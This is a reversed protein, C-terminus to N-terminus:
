RPELFAYFVRVGLNRDDGPTAGPVASPVFTRDVELSLTVSEDEGMQDAGLLLEHFQRDVSNVRSEHVVVDGLRIVLQQPPDFLDARGDFELYLVADVGPNRFSLGARDATWRWHENADQNYEDDHWGDQYMLFSSEPQPVLSVVTGRYERHGLDEGALPLRQGTTASYLGVSVVADGIYPYMPIRARHTYSITQGPQWQSTPTPPDHDAAWMLDGNADLFHVMVRYDEALAQHTPAVVFQLALTVPGGLPVTDRDLQVTVSAVQSDSNSDACSVAFLGHAVILILLAAFRFHDFRPQLVSLTHSLTQTRHRPAVTANQQM